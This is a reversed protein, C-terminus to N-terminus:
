SRPTRRGGPISSPWTPESLSTASARELFPKAQERTSIEARPQVGMSLATKYVYDRVAQVQPTAVARPKGISTSYDGGGFVAIDIGGVSLIAELIEVAERKEIM